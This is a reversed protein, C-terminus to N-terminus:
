EDWGGVISSMTNLFLDITNCTEELKGSAGRLLVSNTEAQNMRLLKEENSLSYDSMVERMNDTEPLQEAIVAKLSKIGGEIEDLAEYFEGMTVHALSTDTM